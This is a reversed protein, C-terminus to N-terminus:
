ALSGGYLPAIFPNFTREQEVTTAPGHGPYLTTKDPLTMVHERISRMLQQFDGGPLDTRGISAEFVVDGVFAVGTKEIYFLV